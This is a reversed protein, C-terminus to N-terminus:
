DLAQAYGVTQANSAGASISLLLATIAFYKIKLFSM